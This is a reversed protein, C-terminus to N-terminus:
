LDLDVFGGDFSDAVVHAGFDVGCILLTDLVDEGIVELVELGNDLAIDLGLGHSNVVLVLEELLEDSGLNLLKLLGNLGDGL